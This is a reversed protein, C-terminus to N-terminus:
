NLANNLAETCPSKLTINGIIAVNPSNLFALPIKNSSFSFSRASPTSTDSAKCTPIM